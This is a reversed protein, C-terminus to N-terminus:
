PPSKSRRGASIPMCAVICAVVAYALAVRARVRCAMVISAVVVYATVAHATVVRLWLGCIRERPDIQLGRAM